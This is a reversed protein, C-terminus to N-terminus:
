RSRARPERLGIAVLTSRITERNISAPFDEYWARRHGATFHCIAGTCDMSTEAIFKRLEKNVDFVLVKLPPLRASGSTYKEWGRNISSVQLVRWLLSQVLRQRATLHGLM